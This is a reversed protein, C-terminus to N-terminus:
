ERESEEGEDGPARRYARRDTESLREYEAAINTAEESWDVPDDTGYYVTSAVNRMAQALREVDLQQADGTM